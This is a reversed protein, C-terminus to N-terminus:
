KMGSHGLQQRSSAWVRAIVGVLMRLTDFFLSQQNADCSCACSSAPGAGHVSNVGSDLVVEWVVPMM